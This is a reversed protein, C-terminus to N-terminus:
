FYVTFLGLLYLRWLQSWWHGGCLPHGKNLGFVGHRRQHDLRTVFLCKVLTSFGSLQQVFQRELVSGSLAVTQLYWLQPATNTTLPIWLCPRFHSLSTSSLSYHASFCEYGCEAMATGLMKQCGPRKLLSIRHQLFCV